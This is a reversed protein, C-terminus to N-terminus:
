ESLKLCAEANKGLKVALSVALLAGTRAITPIMDRLGGSAVGGDELPRGAPQVSSLPLLFSHTTFALQRGELPGRQNCM